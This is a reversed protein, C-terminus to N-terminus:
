SNEGLRINVSRQNEPIQELVKPDNSLWKRASMDAKKWLESLQRYLDIGDKTDSVSDLSDDMYTSLLVTECARPYDERYKEANERSVFQALFPSANGGFILRNFEFVCIDSLDDPNRWLFRFFNRDENSIEINMYMEAIDCIIAVRNKRFRTLIKVIDQQLSPGQHTCDNLSMGKYRASADFVIRVKSTQKDLKM